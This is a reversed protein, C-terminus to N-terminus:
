RRNKKKALKDTNNKDDGLVDTMQKQVSNLALASLTLVDM